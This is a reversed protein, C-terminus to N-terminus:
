FASRTNLILGAQNCWRAIIWISCCAGRRIPRYERIVPGTTPNTVLDAPM